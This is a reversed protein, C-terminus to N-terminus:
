KSIEEPKKGSLKLSLAQNKISKTWIDNLEQQSKPWPAKERDYDYYEDKTFDFEYDVLKTMVFDVREHFRKRFVRYIAFAPSVNEAATLNDIQYRYKEFSAIDSALFFSRNNDLAKLYGDYIASSLSDNMDLKQFHYNVLLLSIVKAQKGYVPKELLTTDTPTGSFAQVVVVLGVAMLLVFRKM